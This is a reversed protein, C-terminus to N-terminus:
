EARLQRTEGQKLMWVRDRALQRQQLAVALDRPAQDFSDQALEFTGWHVGLAQGAELDLVIKVADDPDIHQPSMFDRPLYAGVPLALFDIAGLRQRIEKFDASYGTDGTYLFRWSPQTQREIAFGGWLTANTDFPSRKSWHQAPTFHIKLKGAIRNDWWDMESVNTIGLDDFWAKVGLPVLFHPKQGAAILAKITYRDLHDYHNHSILVLDIPPLQEPLIPAPTRRKASLWPHPGAFDSFQPDILINQGDVQLLLSAHGLWTIRPSAAPISLLAHDIPTTWDAIFREYGDTPPRAPRFDGRLNRMMIEYWPLTGIQLSADSNAFGTARHHARSPNYHPNATTCATIALM